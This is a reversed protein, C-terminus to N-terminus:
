KAGYEEGLEARFGDWWQPTAEIDVGEEEIADLVLKAERARQLEQRERLARVAEIVLAESSGYGEQDANKAVWEGLEDPLTIQLM